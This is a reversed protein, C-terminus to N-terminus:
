KALKKAKEEDLLQKVKGLEEDTHVVGGSNLDLYWQLTLERTKLDNVMFVFDIRTFYRQNDFDKLYNGGFIPLENRMFKRVAELRQKGDVLELTGKFSGMWNPHNWLLCDSGQGGKVKYEVYAIQKAESWVHGRQYDPSLDLEYKAYHELHKELYGWDVSVRYSPATMFKPIDTIKM